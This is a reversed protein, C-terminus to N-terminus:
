TQETRFVPFDWTRTRAPLGKHMTGTIDIQNIRTVFITDDIHSQYCDDLTNWIDALNTINM